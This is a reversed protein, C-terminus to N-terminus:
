LGEAHGQEVVEREVVAIPGSGVEQCRECAYGPLDPQQQYAHVCPHSAVRSLVSYHWLARARM